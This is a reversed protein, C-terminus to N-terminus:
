ALPTTATRCPALRRGPFDPAVRDVVDEAIRRFTTFKGGLVTLLGGPDEHIRHSRTVAWPDKKEQAILPRVGAFTSLIKGEEFRFSPLARNVAELLYAIEEPEARAEGPDGSYDTDTTGILTRGNWPILFLIRGDRESSVVLAEKFGADPYVLHIGKSMRVLPRADPDSLRRVSDAWPGTANVIRRARVWTRSRTLGDEVEAAAVGGERRLGTVRAQPCLVAGAAEATKLVALVLGVDDMQADTYLVARRYGAEVLRPEQQRLEEGGLFRYRGIRKRGALLDYLLVGLCVLPWPRPRVGRVPILFPLPKVLQPAISLLIGREQLAERVLRFDLQELYRIGGHILKTTKSSTGGAFEGQEVLACSLGRSSADWAIGAGVIGGGIILLDFPTGKPESLDRRM